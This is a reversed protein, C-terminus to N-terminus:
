ADKGGAGAGLIREADEAAGLAELEDLQEETLEDDFGEPM